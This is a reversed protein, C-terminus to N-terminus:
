AGRAAFNTLEIARGGDKLSRQGAELVEVVRLGSAADSRAPHEGRVAGLFHSCETRLPEGGKIAPIQIDGSRISLYESFTEFEPTVDVRKDYVRIKEVGVADDFVLMKKSGVVTFKRVKHPDLWSVHSHSMRGDEFSMNLFVVDEIGPQLYAQGTATVSKPLEGMLTLIISIDHPALSWLANETQRVIGLNVRQTYIYRLEGLEGSDLVKKMFEVCPHYELLHGVMCVKSGQKSLQLLEYSEEPKLTMPKEVFVHKGAELARKALPFHHEAQVALVVAEVDDKLADEFDATVEVSPHQLRTRAQIEPSADVVRMLDAGPIAAFNRVLNRGWYGAGVVAVRVPNNDAMFVGKLPIL